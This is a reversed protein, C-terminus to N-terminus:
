LGFLGLKLTFIPMFIGRNNVLRISNSTAEKLYLVTRDGLQLDEDLELSNFPKHPSTAQSSAASSAASSTSPSPSLSLSFSNKHDLLNTKHCLIAGKLSYVQFLILM